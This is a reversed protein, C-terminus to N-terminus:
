RVEVVVVDAANLGFCGPLPAIRSTDYVCRPGGEVVVYFEDGTHLRACYCHLFPHVDQANWICLTTHLQSCLTRLDADKASLLRLICGAMLWWKVDLM